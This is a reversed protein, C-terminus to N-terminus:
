FLSLIRPLTNIVKGRKSCSEEDEPDSFPILFVLFKFDVVRTITYTRLYKKRKQTCKVNM